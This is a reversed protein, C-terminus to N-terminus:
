RGKARKAKKVKAPKKTKKKQTAKKRTAAKRRTATAAKKGPAVKKVPSRRAPKPTGRLFIGQGEETCTQGERTLTWHWDTFGDDQPTFTVTGTTETDPASVTVAGRMAVTKGNDHLIFMPNGSINQPREVRGLDSDFEFRLWTNGTEIHCQAIFSKNTKSRWVYNSSANDSM